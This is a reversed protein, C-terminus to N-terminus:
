EYGNEHKWDAFQVKDMMIDRSKTGNDKGVIGADALQDMLRAARNFGIRFIRQLNGISAKESDIIYDAAKIFLEDREDEVPHEREVPDNMWSRNQKAMDEDSISCQKAWFDRVAAVEDDSVWCGQVRVPKPYGTPYFLMDGKGLLKEAGNM